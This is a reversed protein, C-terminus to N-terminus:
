FPAVRGDRAVRPLDPLRQKAFVTRLSREGVGLHVSEYFALGQALLCQQTGSTRICSQGKIFSPTLKLKAILLKRCIQYPPALLAHPSKM